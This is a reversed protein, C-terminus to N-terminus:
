LALKQIQRKTLFADLFVKIVNKDENTLNEIEKFQKLLEKDSLQANVMEDHSGNMLFDTSTHLALALKQLVDSSPSSKLTEYRGIQIYSMGVLKALDQQTFKNATRLEKIREGISM